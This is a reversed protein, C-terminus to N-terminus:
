RKPRLTVISVLFSLAAVLDLVRWIIPTFKIPDFPNFLVALFVYTWMMVPRDHEHAQKAVILSAGLVVWNLLQYYADFNLPWPYIAGLAMVIAFAKLWHYALLKKM